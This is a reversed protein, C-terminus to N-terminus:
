GGGPNSITKKLMRRVTERSLRDLGPERRAAAQLENLTWRKRGTPAGSCALATVKAEVDTDYERPRGPRAVDFVALEVGGQLYAARTRWVATRGLGLVAMIQAEPVGRDLSSLVHARNVERSQHLGKSRIEDVVSRDENTLHLETQRMVVGGHMSQRHRSHIFTENSAHRCVLQATSHQLQMKTKVEDYEMDKKQPTGPKATAVANQAALLNAKELAKRDYRDPKAMRLTDVVNIWTGTNVLDSVKTRLKKFDGAATDKKKELSKIEDDLAVALENRSKALKAGAKKLDNAADFNKGLSDLGVLM